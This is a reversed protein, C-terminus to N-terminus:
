RFFLLLRNYTIYVNMVSLAAICCSTPIAIYIFYKNSILFKSLAFILFPLVPIIFRPYILWIWISSNYTFLFSTYLILFCLEPINNNIYKKFSKSYFCAAIGIFSFIYWASIKFTNLLPFNSIRFSKVVTIFPWTIPLSSDWDVRQYGSFNALPNGTYLYILLCYIGGMCLGILISRSLVIWEKKILFTFGAGALAFIGLPRVTVSFALLFVCFYYHKKKFLYFGGFILLIFLPEAGGFASRQIWDWSILSFWAATTPGFLKSCIYISMISCTLCIVWLMIDPPVFLFKAPLYMVLPLGWLIKYDSNLISIDNSTLARTIRIYDFNDGFVNFLQWFSKEGFIIIILSFLFYGTITSILINRTKLTNM